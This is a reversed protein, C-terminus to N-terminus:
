SPLAAAALTEEVLQLLDRPSFPKMIVRQVGLERRLVEADLELGKATLMFVPVGQLEPQERIKQCLQLGNLRPMQCDTIVLDPRDHEILEWAGQGDPATEVTYGAKTLKMSVALVIHRDDDCVVIRQSM